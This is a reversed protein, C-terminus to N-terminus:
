IKLRNNIKIFKDGNNLLYIYSCSNFNNINNITKNQSKVLEPNIYSKGIFPSINKSHIIDTKKDSYDIKNNINKSSLCNNSSNNSLLKKKLKKNDNNMMEFKKKIIRFNETNNNVSNFSYKYKKPIINQKNILTKHKESKFKENETKINSIYNIINSNSNKKEFVVGKETKFEKLMKLKNKINFNNRHIILNNNNTINNDTNLRNIQKKIVNNKKKDKSFYSTTTNNKNVALDNNGMLNNVFDILHLSRLKNTIKNNNSHSIFSERNSIIHKPTYKNLIKDNLFHGNRERSNADKLKENLLYQKCKVKLKNIIRSNTINTKVGNKSSSNICTRNKKNVNSSNSNSIKNFFENNVTSITNYFNNNIIKNQKIIASDDNIITDATIKKKPMITNNIKNMFLLIESKNNLNFNNNHHIHAKQKRKFYNMIFSHDKSNKKSIPRTKRESLTNNKRNINNITKEKLINARIKNKNICEYKIILKKTKENEKKLHTTFENINKTKELFSSKFNREINKIINTKEKFNNSNLLKPNLVKNNINKINFSANNNNNLDYIKKSENKM